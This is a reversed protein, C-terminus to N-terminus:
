HSTILVEMYIIKCILKPKSHDPPAIGRRYILCTVSAEQPRASAWSDGRTMRQRVRPIVNKARMKKPPKSKVQNKGLNEKKRKKPMFCMTYFFISTSWLSVSSHFCLQAKWFHFACNHKESLSFYPKAKRCTFFCVHTEFFNFLM